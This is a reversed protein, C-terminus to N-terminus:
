RDAACCMGTTGAPLCPQTLGTCCFGANSTQGSLLCCKTSRCESDGCCPTTTTCATGPVECQTPGTDTAFHGDIAVDPVEADSAGSADSAGGTDADELNSSPPPPAPADDDDGFFPLFGGCSALALLLLPRLFKL